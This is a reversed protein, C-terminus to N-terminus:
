TYSCYDNWNLILDDLHEADFSVNLNDKMYVTFRALGQNDIYVIQSLDIYCNDVKCIMRKM